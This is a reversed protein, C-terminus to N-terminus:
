AESKAPLTIVSERSERARLLSLVPLLLLLGVLFFVIGGQHHLRGNLFSPNVYLALLTLTAIRIGNKLIMIFLGCVVFLAKSWFGKLNFHAAVLALILLAMSSRIGSCEHAVEINMTPLHFVFGERLAPVGVLDFFIGTIWASGVQLLYIVEELLVKPPPVMLLLFLLPFSASRWATKGFLLAFGAIWVMVLAVIYGSTRLDSSSDRAALSTFLGACIACFILSGGLPADYSLSVFIKHRDIFFVWASILPIFILYSSDGNLLSTRVLNTLPVTFLLVSVLIWGGFLVQRKLTADVQNM